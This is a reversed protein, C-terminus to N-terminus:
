RYCHMIIKITLPLANDNDNFNDNNIVISSSIQQAFDLFYQVLATILSYGPLPQFGGLTFRLRSLINIKNHYETYIYNNNNIQLRM